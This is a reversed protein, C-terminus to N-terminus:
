RSGCRLRRLGTGFREVDAILDSSQAWYAHAWRAGLLQNEEPLSLGLEATLQFQVENASPVSHRLTGDLDFIITELPFKLM